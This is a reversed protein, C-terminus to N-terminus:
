ASRPVFTPFAKAMTAYAEREASSHAVPLAIVLELYLDGAPKTAQAAPIGRGKLRLTRGAKWVDPIKVEAEGGPTAVKLWPGLTAEWPALALPGYVDRGQTRWQMDKKFHLDLLLDGADAGGTGASGYGALRIQQGEFVGKPVTVQLNSQGTTVVTHETGQLLITKQAGQYADLLHLELRAHKDHGRQAGSSGPSQANRRSQGFLQEFFNTPTGSRDSSKPADPFHFFDGLGEPKQYAQGSAARENFRSRPADGMTDFAKRQVPDSLVDNAENVEAMSRTADAAKNMDPHFKRAQKRYAKKIMAPSANRAVDLVKYYDKFHM